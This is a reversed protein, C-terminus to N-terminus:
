YKGNVALETDKSQGTLSDTSTKILCRYSNEDSLSVNALLLTVNQGIVLIDTNPRNIQKQNSSPAIAAVNAGTDKQTIVANSFIEGAALGFGWRGGCHWTKVKLPQERQKGYGDMLPLVSQLVPRDM